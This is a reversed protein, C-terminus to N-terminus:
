LVSDIEVKAKDFLERREVYEIALKTTSSMIKERSQIVSQTNKLTLPGTDNDRLYMALKEFGEM